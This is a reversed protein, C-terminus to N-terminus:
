RSCHAIDALNINEYQHRVHAAKRSRSTLEVDARSRDAIPQSLEFGMQASTQEMARGATQRQRLITGVVQELDFRKKPLELFGGSGRRAALPQHLSGQFHGHWCRETQLMDRGEHWFKELAVRL